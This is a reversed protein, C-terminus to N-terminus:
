ANDVVNWALLAVHEAFGLTTVVLLGFVKYAILASVDVFERDWLASRIIELFLCIGSAESCGFNADFDGSDAEITLLASCWLVWSQGCTM